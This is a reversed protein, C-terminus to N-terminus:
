CDLITFTYQDAPQIAPHNTLRLECFLESFSELSLVFPAIPLKRPLVDFMMLISIYKVFDVFTIARLISKRVNQLSINFTQILIGLNHLNAAPHFLVLRPGPAVTVHVHRLLRVALRGGQAHAEAGAVM